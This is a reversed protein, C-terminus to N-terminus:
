YGQAISTRNAKCTSYAANRLAYIQLNAVLVYIQLSLNVAKIHWFRQQEFHKQLLWSELQYLIWSESRWGSRTEVAAVFYMEGSKQLLVNWLQSPPGTASCDIAVEKDNVLGFLPLRHLRCFLLFCHIRQWFQKPTKQGPIRPLFFSNLFIM